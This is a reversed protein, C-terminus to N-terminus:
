NKFWQGPPPIYLGGHKPAPPPSNKNAKHIPKTGPRGQTVHPGHHSPASAATTASDDTAPVNDDSDAPSASDVTAASATDTALESSPLEVIPTAASAASTASTAATLLATPIPEVAPARGALADRLLSSPSIGLWYLIAGAIAVIGLLIPGRRSKRESLSLEGSDVRTKALVVEPSSMGSSVVVVTAPSRLTGEPTGSPTSSLAPAEDTLESLAQLLESASAYREAASKKLLKQIVADFRPGVAEGVSKLAAPSLSPPEELVHKRMLTVAGGKFPREGTLLEFFMIGISYLDSRADIPQGLAQEPSMYDPTGFVAGMKTLPPAAAPAGGSPAEALGISDIKAIGFDLVKVFDSEGDRDVLMINEPKLDRHVVGAAHAAGVAAAIQRVIKIAREPALPGDRLAARLDVGAVYELVLFFSRDELRGFDTAAAVNPHTIKGAAVAEREFRAVVEPTTSMEAHLVKIAVQKRMHIHEAAYVKGMGGEGLMADVRYREAIITGPALTEARAPDPPELKASTRSALIGGREPEAVEPQSPGQKKAPLPTPM